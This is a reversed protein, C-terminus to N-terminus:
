LPPDASRRLVRARSGRRHPRCGCVVPEFNERGGITPQSALFIREGSANLEIGSRIQEIRKSATFSSALFHDQIEGRYSYAIIGGAAVALTLVVAVGQAVRKGISGAMYAITDKLAPFGGTQFTELRYRFRAVGPWVPTIQALPSPRYLTICTALVAAFIRIHRLQYRM